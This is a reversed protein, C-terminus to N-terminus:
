RKNKKATILCLLLLPVIFHHWAMWYFLQHVFVNIKVPNVADDTKRKCFNTFSDQALAALKDDVDLKCIFGEQHVTNLCYLWHRGPRKIIIGGTRQKCFM